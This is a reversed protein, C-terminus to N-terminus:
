HGTFTRWLLVMTLVVLATSVIALIRTWFLMKESEAALAATSNSLSKTNDRIELQVDDGM